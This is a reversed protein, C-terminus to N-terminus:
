CSRLPCDPLIPNIVNCVKDSRPKYATVYYSNQHGKSNKITIYIWIIHYPYSMYCAAYYPIGLSFFGNPFGFRVDSSLMLIAGLIFM